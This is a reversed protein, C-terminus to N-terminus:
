PLKATKKSTYPALKIDSLKVYSSYSGPSIMISTRGTADTKNSELGVVVIADKVPVTAGDDNIILYIEFEVRVQNGLAFNKGALGFNPGSSSYVWFLM